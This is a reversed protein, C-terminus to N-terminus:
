WVGFMVLGVVSAMSFGVGSLVGVAGAVAYQLLTPPPLSVSHMAESPAIGSVSLEPAQAMPLEDTDEDDDAVQWSARAADIWSAVAELDPTRHQPNPETCKVVLARLWDPVGDGPDLPSVRSEWAAVRRSEDVGGGFVAAPFARGGSLMAYAVCGLAYVDAKPGAHTPDRLVEPALYGLDAEECEGQGDLEDIRVVRDLGLLWASSAASVAVQAPRVDRHTWGGAHLQGLATALDFLVSCAHKWSFHPDGIRDELREVADLRYALWSLGAADGHDVITPISDHNLESALEVAAEQGAQARDSEALLQVVANSGADDTAHFWRPRGFGVSDGLTWAGLRSGTSVADSM